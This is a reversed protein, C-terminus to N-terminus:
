ADAKLNLGSFLDGEQPIKLLGRPLMAERQAGSSSNLGLSVSDFFAEASDFIIPSSAGAQALATHSVTVLFILLCSRYLSKFVITKM